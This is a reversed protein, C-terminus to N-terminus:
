PDVWHHPIDDSHDVAIFDPENGKICLQYEGLAKPFDKAYTAGIKRVEDECRQFLLDSLQQISSISVLEIKHEKLTLGNDKEGVLFRVEPVWDQRTSDFHAYIKDRITEMLDHVRRYKTPVIDDRLPNLGNSVKFPRCYCVVIAVNLPFYIPHNQDLKEKLIYECAATCHQFAQSAYHWSWIERRVELPISMGGNLAERLFACDLIRM